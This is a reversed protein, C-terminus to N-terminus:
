KYNLLVMKKLAKETYFVLNQYNKNFIFQIINQITEKLIKEKFAFEFLHLLDYIRTDKSPVDGIVILGKESLIKSLQNLIKELDNKELYQIVSYIIIIDVKFENILLGNLNKVVKIKPNKNDNECLYKYVHDSQDYLILKEIGSSLFLNSGYAYGCGFDLVKKHELNGILDIIEQSSQCQQKKTYSFEFYLTEQNWFEKQM